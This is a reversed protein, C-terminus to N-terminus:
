GITPRTLEHASAVARWERDYDPAQHFSGGWTSRHGIHQVLSPCHYYIPKGLRGALRPLKVDPPGEVDDWHELVYRLCHRSLLFAQSGFICDPPVVVAHSPVDYGTIRHGPNYLGALTVEGQALPPWAVLNHYFHQNFELDDELMLVFDPDNARARQLGALTDRTMNKVQSGLNHEELQVTVPGAWGASLLSQLTKERLQARKACSIMCASIRVPSRRTWTQAPERPKVRQLEGERRGGRGSTGPASESERQAIPGGIRGDWIRRLKELDTRCEAEFWFGAIRRNVPLLNWKDLNRHQFLRRGSLDYQLMTARLRALPKAPMVYPQQLARFALQFTDKDGHLHAYFFDSQENFWMALNLARWCKQKNVLIQGSEFEGVARPKLGCWRWVPSSAPLVWFDPWFMAGARRFRAAKFLYEPNRVPVNDADLLLVERFRSHLLAYPKLEWGNLLRAPYRQRVHGVDVCEVGLPSLMSEMRADIEHPGLHWVQIPLACGLRRLQNVCVWVGPFYAAGGGCIVIGRGAFKGRREATAWLGRRLRPPPVPSNWDKVDHHHNRAPRPFFPYRPLHGIREMVAARVNGAHLAADDFLSDRTAAVARRGARAEHATLFPLAGGVFYSRIRGAVEAASIMDMCRPLEGRTELCLWDPKDGSDGDGLPFTRSRWCAGAANCPLAGVNQIFQHSPYAEWHSPERGGAVVV